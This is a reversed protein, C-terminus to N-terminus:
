RDEQDTFFYVGVGDPDNVIFSRHGWSQTKLNERLELGRATIQRYYGDVDDVEIVLFVGAPSRYDWASGASTEKPLSLIEIRGAAAEFVAGRDGPGRDWSEVLPLELGDRYFALTAEFDRPFYAARFENM